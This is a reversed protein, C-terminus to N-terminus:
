RRGIAADLTDTRHDLHIVTSRRDLADPRESNNSERTTSRVASDGFVPNAEAFLLAIESETRLRNSM